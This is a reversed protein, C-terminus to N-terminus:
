AAPAMLLGACHASGYSPNSFFFEGDEESLQMVDPSQLMREIMEMCSKAETTRWFHSYVHGMNTVCGLVLTTCSMTSPLSRYTALAVKYYSLAEGLHAELHETGFLGAVHHALALNYLLVVSVEVLNEKLAAEDSKRFSFAGQYLDFMNNPSVASADVCDLPAHILAVDDDDNVSCCGNMPDEPDIVMLSKACEMAHRFSFIADQYRGFCLSNVGNNNLAIM